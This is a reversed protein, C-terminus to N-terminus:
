TWKSVIKMKGSFDVDKEFGKCYWDGEFTGNVHEGEYILLDWKGTQGAKKRDVYLNDFCISM